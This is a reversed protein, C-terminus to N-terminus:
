GHFKGFYVKTVRAAFQRALIIQLYKIVGSMKAQDAM